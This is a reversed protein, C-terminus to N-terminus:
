PWASTKATALVVTVGMLVLFIGLLIAGFRRAQMVSDGLEGRAKRIRAALMHHAGIAFFAGVLKAQLWHLHIYASADLSLRLVGTVVAVVFAPQAMRRMTTHAREVRDPNAPGKGAVFRVGAALVWAIWFMVALRHVLLLAFRM